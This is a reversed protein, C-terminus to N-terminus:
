KKKLDEITLALSIIRKFIKLRIGNIAELHTSNSRDISIISSLIAKKYEKSNTAEIAKKFWYSSSNQVDKLFIIKM